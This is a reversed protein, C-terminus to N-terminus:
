FVKAKVSSISGTVVSKKQTGYGVVVVEQLDQSSLVLKFDIKTRGNIPEQVTKYGVYSITLSGDTPAKIEYDGDLDSITSKSTGKILSTAGPISLGKEDIIKGKVVIDQAQGYVSFLLSSICFIFLKTLKM